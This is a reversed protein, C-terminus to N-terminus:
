GADGEEGQMLSLNMVIFDDRMGVAGRRLRGRARAAMATTPATIATAPQALALSVGAAFEPDAELELAPNVSALCTAFEGIVTHVSEVRSGSTCFYALSFGPTFIFM